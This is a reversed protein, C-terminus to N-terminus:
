KGRKVKPREFDFLLLIATGILVFSLVLLRLDPSEGGKSHACHQYWISADIGIRFACAGSHNKDFGETIALNASSRSQGAKNATQV